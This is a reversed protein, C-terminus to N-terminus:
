SKSVVKTLTDIFEIKMKGDEIDRILIKERVVEQEGIIKIGSEFEYQVKKIRDYILSNDKTFTAQTVKSESLKDTYSQIKNAPLSRRAFELPNITGNNNTHESILHTYIQTKTEAPIDAENIFQITIDFFKKTTISPEERLKCGLFDKLFFDAVERTQFYGQQQDCLYGVVENNSDLYFLVIKFLKTKKTLMLDKIHQVNFTTQGATNQERQIRVGEEREVKLIALAYQNRVHCPIFLLIGGTNQATQVTYLEKAVNQTISISNEQSVPFGIQLGIEFFNKILTQVNTQNLSDFQIGFSNSSGITQVIKDHFFKTLDQDFDTPAESLIIDEEELDPNAKLQRKALKKPVDHVILMDVSLYQLSNKM